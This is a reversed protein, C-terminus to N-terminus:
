ENTFIKYCNYEKINKELLEEHILYISYNHLYSEKVLTIVNNMNEKSFTQFDQNSLIIDFGPFPFNWSLQVIRKVKM